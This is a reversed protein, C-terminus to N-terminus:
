PAACEQPGIYLLCFRFITVRVEPCHKYYSQMHLYYRAYSIHSIRQSRGVVCFVCNPSIVIVAHCRRRPCHCGINCWILSNLYHYLYVLVFSHSSSPPLHFQTGAAAQRSGFWRCYIASSRSQRSTREFICVISMAFFKARMDGPATTNM